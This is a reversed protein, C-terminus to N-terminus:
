DFNIDDWIQAQSLNTIPTYPGLPPTGFNPLMEDVEEIEEVRDLLFKKMQENNEIEPWFWIGGECEGNPCIWDVVKQAAEEGPTIEQVNSWKEWQEFAIELAMKGMDFWDDWERLEIEKGCAWAVESRMHARMFPKAAITWLIAKLFTRGDEDMEEHKKDIYKEIQAELKDQMEFYNITRGGSGLGRGATMVKWYKTDSTKMLGIRRYLANKVAEARLIDMEKKELVWKMNQADWVRRVMDVEEKMFWESLKYNSLIIVTEWKGYVLGGKVPWIRPVEDCLFNFETLPMTREGKFEDIMMVPKWQIDPLWWRAAGREGATQMQAISNAGKLKTVCDVVTRSKGIGADGILVLVRVRRPEKDSEDAVKQIAARCNVAGVTLLERFEVDKECEIEGRELRGVMQEIVEEKETKKGKKKEPEQEAEWEERNWVEGDLFHEGELVRSDKKSTYLLNAIKTKRAAEFHTGDGFVNKYMWDWSQRKGSAFWLFGQIHLKGEKTSEIQWGWTPVDAYVAARNIYGRVIDAAMERTIEEGEEFFYTFAWGSRRNHKKERSM